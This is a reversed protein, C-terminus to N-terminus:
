LSEILRLIEVVASSHRGGISFIHLAVFTFTGIDRLAKDASLIDALRFRASTWLSDASALRGDLHQALVSADAGEHTSAKFTGQCM